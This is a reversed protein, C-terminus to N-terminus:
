YIRYPGTRLTAHVGTAPQWRCKIAVLLELDLDLATRCPRGPGACQCMMAIPPKHWTVTLSWWPVLLTAISGAFVKFRDYAPRTILQAAQDRSIVTVPMCPVRGSLCTLKLVMPLFAPNRRLPYTSSPCMWPWHSLSGRPPQWQTRGDGYSGRLRRQGWRFGRM